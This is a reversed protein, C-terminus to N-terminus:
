LNDGISSKYRWAVGLDGPKIIYKLTRVLHTIVSLELKFDLVVVCVNNNSASQITLFNYSEKNIFIETNKNLCRSSKCIKMHLCRLRIKILGAARVCEINIVISKNINITHWAM